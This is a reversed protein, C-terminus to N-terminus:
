YASQAISNDNSGTNASSYKLTNYKAVQLRQRLENFKTQAEQPTDTLTPLAAIIVRADADSVTGAGSGALAKAIQTVSAQALSNYVSANKDLGASGAVNQLLGVLRGGGGGASNYLQELQDITNTANDASALAAQNSQSFQQQSSNAKEYESALTYMKGLVAAAKEDGASYAQMLASSLQDSSYGLPSVVGNNQQMQTVGQPSVISQTVLDVTSSSDPNQTGGFAGQAANKYVGQKLADVLGYSSTGTNTAVTPVKSSVSKMLGGLKNSNADLPKAIINLPNRVIDGAQNSLDKGSISRAGDAQATVRDIKSLDVFDKKISRLDKVSKANRVENSIRRAAEAQAKNGAKELDNAMFLLDDAGSKIIAPLNKSSEASSYVAKEIDDALGNYVKAIQKQDLSVNFGNTADSAISRFNNAQRIAEVPDVASSLSGQAGGRMAVSANKVHNLLQKRQTDSIAAGADDILSQATKRIGDVNVNKADGIAANTLTDLISNDGNGTLKRAFDAMDGMDSLGTRTNINGFTKVPNIKMNRAQAGTINAQSAILKDGTKAMNPAIKSIANRIPTAAIGQEIGQKIASSGAGKLTAEVIGKGAGKAVSLAKLPGVSTLGGWLAESGVDTGLNDGTIANEAVQGVAGGGAGGLIAGLLGGIATGVGPVISGVSAGLAAGGLSGGMSGLTSINDEWFNKQKKKPATTTATQTQANALNRAQWQRELLQLKNDDFM